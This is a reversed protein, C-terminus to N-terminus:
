KDTEGNAAGRMAAILGAAPVAGVVMAGDVTTRNRQGYREPYSRELLWAAAQWSDPAASKIIRICDMEAQARAKELLQVFEAYVSEEDEEARTLWNYYTQKVIGAAICATEVYGGNAINQLVAAVIRPTLKSGVPIPRTLQWETIIEPTIQTEEDSM